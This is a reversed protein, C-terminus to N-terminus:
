PKVESDYNSLQNHERRAPVIHKRKWHVDKHFSVTSQMWCQCAQATPQIVTFNLVGGRTEINPNSKLTAHVISAGWVCTKGKLRHRLLRLCSISFRRIADWKTERSRNKCKLHGVSKMGRYSVEINQVKSRYQLTNSSINKEGNWAEHPVEKM